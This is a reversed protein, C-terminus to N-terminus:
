PLALATSGFTVREPEEGGPGIRWSLTVPTTQGPKLTIMEGLRTREYDGVDEPKQSWAYLGHAFAALFRATSRLEEGGPGLVRVDSARLDLDELSDNRITGSLVRDTAPGSQMVAPAAKWALDGTEGSARSGALLVVAVVVAAVVLATAAALQARPRAATM